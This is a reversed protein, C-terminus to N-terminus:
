SPEHRLNHRLVARNSGIKGTKGRQGKAGRTPNGRGLPVFPLPDELRDVQDWVYEVSVQWREAVQEATLLKDM